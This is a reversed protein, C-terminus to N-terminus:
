EGEGTQAMRADFKLVTGRALDRVAAFPQQAPMSAKPLPELQPPEAQYDKKACAVCRALYASTVHLVPDGVDIAAGCSGCARKVKSRQWIM